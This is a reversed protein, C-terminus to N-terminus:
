NRSSPINQWSNKEDQKKIMIDLSSWITRYDCERFTYLKDDYTRGETYIKSEKNRTLVGRM